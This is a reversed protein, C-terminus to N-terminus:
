PRVSTDMNGLELGSTLPPAQQGCSVAVLLFLAVTLVRKM